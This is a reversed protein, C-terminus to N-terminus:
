CSSTSPVSSPAASRSGARRAARAAGSSCSGSSSTSTASASSSSSARGSAPASCCCSAPATASTRRRPSSRPKRRTRSCTPSRRSRVAEPLAAPRGPEHRHAGGRVAVQRLGQLGATVKYRSGAPYLAIVRRFHDIALEDPRRRPKRGRPPRPRVPLVPHNGIGRRGRERELEPLRRRSGRAPQRPVSRREHSRRPYALRRRAHLAARRALEIGAPDDPGPQNHSPDVLVFPDRGAAVCAALCADHEASAAYYELMLADLGVAAVRKWWSVRDPNGLGCNAVLYFDPLQARIYRLFDEYVDEWASDNPYLAPIARFWSGLMLTGTVNDLFKRKVGTVAARTKVYAVWAARYDPNGIDGMYLGGGNTIEVGASDKLVWGNQHAQSYLVAGYWTNSGLEVPTQYEFGHCAPHAKEFVGVDIANGFGVTIGGYNARESDPMLGYRSGQLDTVYGNGVHVGAPAPPPPPTAPATGHLYIVGADVLEEGHRTLMIPPQVRQGALLADAFASWRTVEGPNDHAWKAYQSGAEADDVFSRFDDLLTV